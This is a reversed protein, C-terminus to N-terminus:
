VYRNVILASIAGFPGAAVPVGAAFGALVGLPALEVDLAGAFFPYPSVM